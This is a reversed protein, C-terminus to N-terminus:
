NLELRLRGDVVEASRVRAWADRIDKFEQSGSYAKLFIGIVRKALGAEVPIAANNIHASEFDFRPAAGPGFRGTVFATFDADIGFLVAEVPLSIHLTEGVISFNPLQPVMLVNADEGEESTGPRFQNTVWANLEGGTWEISAAEGDLLQRRKQSWSNTRQVSGEFYYADGPRPARDGASELFADRDEASSFSRAPFLSLFFFGALVGLVATLLGVFYVGM